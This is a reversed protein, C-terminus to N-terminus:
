PGLLNRWDKGTAVDRALDSLLRNRSRAAGRLIVFADDVSIQLREALIGKAQEIVVRSTLATQLQAAVVEVQRISRQQLIGITAADALAQALRLQESGLEDPRTDFLNLAGIVQSRLRLPLANASRFGGIIAQPAFQPWRERAKELDVNIVATGLRYCDRCPGEDNQVEFLELVRAREDSAAVTTLSGSQDAVMLGAAAVDLLEVCRAAVVHLFDIVDFDDVLTDALEVFTEALRQERNMAKGRLWGMRTCGVGAPVRGAQTPLEAIRRRDRRRAGETTRRPQLAPEAHRRDGRVAASRCRRWFHCRWGGAPRDFLVLVLGVALSSGITRVVAIKAPLRIILLLGQSTVM